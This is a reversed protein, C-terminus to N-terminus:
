AHPHYIDCHKVPLMSHILDYKKDRLHADLSSLFIPYRGARTPAKADLAVFNVGAIPSGFRTSILDVQHGRGALAVAIDATYREAGGRQPDANFIVLAINM